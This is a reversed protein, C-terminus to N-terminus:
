LFELMDSLSPPMITAIHDLFDRPLLHQFAKWDWKGRSDVMANIPTFIPLSVPALLAAELPGVERIWHDRWFDISDGEEISLRPFKGRISFSSADNNGSTFLNDYFDVAHSRLDDQSTSWNGDALRLNTILNAKR